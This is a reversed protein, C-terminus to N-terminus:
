GNASEFERILENGRSVVADLAEQPTKSGGLLEQFEQDIVDRIQVYNGFRLGKSNETPAKNTLQRVALEYGAHKEYFGSKKTLEYAALTIPVYGTSTHWFMQIEPSSLFSFFKAVGKYDAAPKKAMV